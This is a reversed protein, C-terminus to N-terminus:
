TKLMKGDVTFEIFNQCIKNLPTAKSTLARLPRHKKYMFFDAFLYLVIPIM